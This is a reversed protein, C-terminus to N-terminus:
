KGVVARKLFAAPIDFHAQSYALAAQEALPITPVHPIHRMAYEIFQRM